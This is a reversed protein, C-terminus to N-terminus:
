TKNKQRKQEELDDFGDPKGLRDLAKKAKKNQPSMLLVNAYAKKADEFNKEREWFIALVLHPLHYNPYIKIVEMLRDQAKQKEGVEAELIAMNVAQLADLDKIPIEKLREKIKEKPEGALFRSHLEQVLYGAHGPEVRYAETFAKAGAGFQGKGDLVNALNGWAIGSKPYAAVVDEWILLPYRYRFNQFISFLGYFFVVLALLFHPRLRHVFLDGGKVIGFMLLFSLGMLPIYLRIQDMVFFLPWIGQTPILPIWFLALSFVLFKKRHFRVFCLLTLLLLLFVFIMSGWPIQYVPLPDDMLRPQPNIWLGLYKPIVELSSKLYDYKPLARRNKLYSAHLNVISMFDLRFWLFFRAILGMLLYLIGTHFHILKEKVRFFSLDAVFLIAPYIIGIEKSVFSLFFLIIQLLVMQLRYPKIRQREMIHFLLGLLIFTAALLSSRKWLFNIGLTQLPHLLFLFGTGWALLKSQKDQIIKLIIQVLLWANLVHLFINIIRLSAASDGFLKVNLLFSLMLIPRYGIFIHDSDIFFSTFWYSPAKLGHLWANNQIVLIDDFYFPNNIAVGFVAVALVILILLPISIRSM